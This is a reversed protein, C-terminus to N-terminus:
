TTRPQSASTGPPAGTTSGAAERLSKIAEAHHHDHHPLVALMRGLPHRRTWPTAPEEPLSEVAELLRDRGTHLRRLAEEWPLDRLPALREENLRNMRGGRDHMWPPPVGRFAPELVREVELDWAHLHLVVERISWKGAGPRTEASGSSLGQLAAHVHARARLLEFLLLQKPSAGERQPFAAPTARPRPRPVAKRVIALKPAAPKAARRAQAAATKPKPVGAKRVSRTRAPRALARRTKRASRPGRSRSKARRATRKKTPSM